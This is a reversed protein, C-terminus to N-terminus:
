FKGCTCILSFQEAAALRVPRSPNLLVLDTVFSTFMKDECLTKLSSPNLVVAITLLELTEKCLAIDDNHLELPANRKAPDCLSHLTEQQLDNLNM